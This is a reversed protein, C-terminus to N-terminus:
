KRLRIERPSYGIGFSISQDLGNLINTSYSLATKPVAVQM